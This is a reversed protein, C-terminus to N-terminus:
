LIVQEPHAGRKLIWQYVEYIQAAVRDWTFRNRVLQLGAAGMSRLKLEDLSVLQKLGEFVGEETATIEIAADQEFGEPLNCYTTMLVPLEYSWAELIAMPLGESFSPLIFADAHAFVLQKAVNFQAGIFSISASLGLEESLLRLEKEYNGQDWGAIVLHWDKAQPSDGAQLLKWSKILNTLGKKPHIRGLYLLIKKGKEIQGKWVPDMQKLEAVNEPVDVGNPIVCIPNKLGFNRIDKVEQETFAQICAAGNLAAKEYLFGAIQKKFKSNNVAWQDLMGHVTTLYPKGSKYAAFSPYQWLGHLHVLDADSNKISSLLSSSFGIAGPGVVKHLNPQFPQWLQLDSSAHADDLGFVEVQVGPITILNQALRRKVESVGGGSRSISSSIFAINM